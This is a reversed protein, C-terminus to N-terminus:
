QVVIVGNMGAHLACHYSYSGQSVSKVVSGSSRSTIDGPSNPGTDWNVTHNV